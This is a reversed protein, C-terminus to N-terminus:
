HLTRDHRSQEERRVARLRRRMRWRHLRYRLQERTPFLRGGEGSRRLYIWAVAQGLVFTALLSLVMSEVSLTGGGERYGLLGDFAGNM